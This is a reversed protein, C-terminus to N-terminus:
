KDSDSEAMETQYIDLPSQWQDRRKQATVHITDQFSTEVCNLPGECQINLIFHVFFM